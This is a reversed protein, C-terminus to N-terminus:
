NFAMVVSLLMCEYMNLFLAKFACSLCWYQMLVDDDDRVMFFYLFYLFCFVVNVNSHGSWGTSLPMKKWCWNVIRWLLIFFRFPFLCLYLSLCLFCVLSIWIKDLYIDKPRVFRFCKRIFADCNWFAYLGSYRRCTWVGWRCLILIIFDVFFMKKKRERISYFRVPFLLISLM